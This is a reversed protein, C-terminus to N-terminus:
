QATDGTDGGGTDGTDGTDEEEALLPCTEAYDTTVACITLFFTPTTPDNSEIRLAGEVMAPEPLTAAVAWTQTEGPPIDNNVREEFTFVGDPNGVMKAEYISLNDTGTSSVDFTASKTFGPDVLDIIIRDTSVAMASDTAAVITNSGDGFGTDTECAALLLLLVPSRM